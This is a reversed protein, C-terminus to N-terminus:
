STQQGISSVSVYVCLQLSILIVLTQCVTPEQFTNTSHIFSRLLFRTKGSNLIIIACYIVAPNPWPFSWFPSTQSPNELIVLLQDPLHAQSAPLNATHILMSQEHINDDVLKVPTYKPKEM